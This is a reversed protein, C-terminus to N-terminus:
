GLNLTFRPTVKWDDQVYGEVNVYNLHPITDPNSQTFSSANGLLFNAFAPNGFLTTFSFGAADSLVM